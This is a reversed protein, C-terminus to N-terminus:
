NEGFVGFAEEPVLKTGYAGSFVSEIGAFKMSIAATVGEHDVETIPTVPFNLLGEKVEQRAPIVEAAVRGLVAENTETPIVGCTGKLKFEIFKEGETPEFVEVIKTQTKATALYSKTQNTTLTTPTECGSLSTKCSSFTLRGKDQGQHISSGEITAGESISGKCEIQFATPKTEAKLIAIGKLQLKVQVAKGQKLQTGNVFWDPHEYVKIFNGAGKATCAANTYNGTGVSEVEACWQGNGLYATYGQIKIWEKPAGETTCTGNAFVGTGPEEVRVCTQAMSTSAMVGSLAAASVLVLAILGIRRM